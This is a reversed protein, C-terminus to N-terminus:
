KIYMVVNVVASGSSTETRWEIVGASDTVVMLSLVNVSDHHALQLGQASADSSTHYYEETDGNTRVALANMDNGAKFQLMVLAQSAGVISSLDLDTWSTPSSGSFAQAGSVVFTAGGAGGAHSHLSTESGDVLEPHAVEVSQKTM